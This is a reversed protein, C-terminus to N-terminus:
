TNKSKIGCGVAKTNAPSPEEGKDVAIIANELFKESVSGEYRASADIAGHYRVVFDKDVLYVEPTRTAGYQPFVKQGYDFLYLFEFGKEKANKQMADFSDGPKLEPSNPQTAVAPYGKPAYKKHLNIM